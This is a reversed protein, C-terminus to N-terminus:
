FFPTVNKKWRFNSYVWIFQYIFILISTCNQLTLQLPVLPPYHINDLQLLWIALHRPMHVTYVMQYIKRRIDIVIVTDLFTIIKLTRAVAVCYNHEFGCQILQLLAICNTYKFISVFVFTLFNIFYTTQL